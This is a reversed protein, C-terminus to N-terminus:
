FGWGSFPRGSRAGWRCRLVAWKMFFFLAMAAFGVRGLVITLVPLEAVAVGNFFFSGGWVLSLKVLVLWEGFKM